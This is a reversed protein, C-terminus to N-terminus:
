KANKMTTLVKDNDYSVIYILYGDEKTELRDNILAVEKPAYNGANWQEYYKKFFGNIAEKVVTEKGEKPLVILYMSAHDLLTPMWAVFSEIDSTDFGYKNKLTAADVSKNNQFMESNKNESDTYTLGSVAQEVTELNWKITPKEGCGTILLIGIMLIGFYKKM